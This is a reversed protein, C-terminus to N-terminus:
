MQSFSFHYIIGQRLADNAAHLSVALQVGLEEGVKHILPVIGSTSVTIKSKGLGIGAKDTLILIAQRVSRNLVIFRAL